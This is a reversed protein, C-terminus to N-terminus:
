SFEVRSARFYRTFEPAFQELLCGKKKKISLYKLYIKV